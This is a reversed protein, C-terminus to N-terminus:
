LAPPRMRFRTDLPQPQVTVGLELVVLLSPLPPVNKPRGRYPQPRDKLGLTAPGSFVMLLVLKIASQPSIQQPFFIKIYHTGGSLQM